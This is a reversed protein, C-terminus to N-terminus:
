GELISAGYIDLSSPNETIYGDLISNADAILYDVVISVTAPVNGDPFNDNDLPLPIDTSVFNADVKTINGKDDEYDDGHAAMIWKGKDASLSNVLLQVLANGAVCFAGDDGQWIYSSDTTKGLSVEFGVRYSIDEGSFNFIAPTIEPNDIVGTNDYGELAYRIEKSLLYAESTIKTITNLNQAM